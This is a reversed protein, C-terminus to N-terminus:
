PGLFRQAFEYYCSPIVMAKDSFGVVMQNAVTSSQKLLDRESGKVEGGRTNLTIGQEKLFQNVEELSKFTKLANVNVTFHNPRFGFLPWGHLM